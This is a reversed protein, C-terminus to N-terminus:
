RWCKARQVPDDPWLGAVEAAYMAIATNRCIVTGDDLQLFPAHGTPSMAKYKIIWEEYGFRVDEYEVPGLDFMIHTAEASGAVDFYCLKM